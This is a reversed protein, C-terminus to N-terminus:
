KKWKLKLSHKLEECSKTRSLKQIIKVELISCVNKNYNECIYIKNVSIM